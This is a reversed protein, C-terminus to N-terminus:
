VSGNRLEAIREKTLDLEDANILITTSTVHKHREGIKVEVGTATRGKKVCLGAREAVAAQIWTPSTYNMTQALLALQTTARPFLFQYWQFGICEPRYTIFDLLSDRECVFEANVVVIPKAKVSASNAGSVANREVGMLQRPPLEVGVAADQLSWGSREIVGVDIWLNSPSDTMQQQRGHFFHHEQCTQRTTNPECVKTPTSDTKEPDRKMELFAEALRASFDLSVDHVGDETLCQHRRFPTCSLSDFRSADNTQEANILWRSGRGFYLPTANSAITVGKWRRELGEGELWYPSEFKLPFCDEGLSHNDGCPATLSSFRSRSACAVKGMLFWILDGSESIPLGYSACTCSDVASCIPTSAANVFSVGFVNLFRKENTFYISEVRKTGNNNTIRVGDMVSTHFPVHSLQREHFLANALFNVVQTPIWFPSLAETVRRESSSASADAAEAGNHRERLARMVAWDVATPLLSNSISLRPQRLTM